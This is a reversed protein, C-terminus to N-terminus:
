HPDGIEIIEISTVRARNVGGDKLHNVPDNAPIFYLRYPQKLDVSFQGRRDDKLEHCRPPPLYTIESLNTAARLEMLRQMLKKAM